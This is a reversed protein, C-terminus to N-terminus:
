GRTRVVAIAALAGALSVLFWPTLTPIAAPEAAAFAARPEGVVTIAFVSALHPALSFPGRVVAGSALDIKSIAPTPSATAVAWFSQRDPDLALAFSWGPYTQVVDGASSRRVIGGGGAHSHLLGGDQLLRLMGHAAGPGPTGFSALPLATCLDFRRLQAGSTYFLTCQDAALDLAQMPAGTDMTQMALTRPDLITVATGGLDRFVIRGDAAYTFFSPRHGPTSVATVAGNAPIRVLQGAVVAHLVGDPGFAVESGALATSPQDYLTGKLVGNSDLWLIKWRATQPTAGPGRGSVVLDGPLFPQGVATPALLFLLAVFATPIQLSKGSPM